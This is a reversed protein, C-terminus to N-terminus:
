APEAQDSIARGNGSYGTAPPKKKGPDIIFQLDFRGMARNFVPHYVSDVFNEAPVPSDQLKSGLQDCDSEKSRDQKTPPVSSSSNEPCGM